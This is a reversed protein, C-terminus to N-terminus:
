CGHGASLLVRGLADWAAGYCTRDSHQEAMRRLTQWDVDLRRRENVMHPM